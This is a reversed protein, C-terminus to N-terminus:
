QTSHVWRGCYRPNRVIQAGLWMLPGCPDTFRQETCLDIQGKHYDVIRVRAVIVPIWVYFMHLLGMFLLLCLLSVRATDRTQAGPSASFWISGAALLFSQVTASLVRYQQVNSEFVAWKAAVFDTM